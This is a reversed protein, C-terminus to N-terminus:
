RGAPGKELAELRKRLDEVKPYLSKLRGVNMFREAAQQRPMAPIGDMVTGAAVDSGVAALATLTADAGIRVHDGVGSGAAMVVRDGIEVSGAIGVMGCIICNEGIVVNHAVQVQNDIKTGSGIVTDRLTGRDITTLAGIEVDDGIVVTGLSHIRLPREVGNLTGDPNRVPIISYGDSGVVANPHVIVRDGIRVRDMIRAGSHILGNGGISVGAGVTAGPLIVTGAGIVSGAGVSAFAGISAGAGIRADPAVAARADIGDGHTTGRDFLRTLTAMAAREHGGFAILAKGPVAAGPKVVAAVARSAPLADVADGVLAVALDGAGTADAPHVLRAIEITADGAVASGLAKAIDGLQV